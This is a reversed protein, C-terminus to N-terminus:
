EYFSLYYASIISTDKCSSSNPLGIEVVPDVRASPTVLKWFPALGSLLRAWWPSPAQPEPTKAFTLFM